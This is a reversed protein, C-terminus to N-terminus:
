PLEATVQLVFLFIISPLIQGSTWNRSPDNQGHHGSEVSVVDSWHSVEGYANLFYMYKKFFSKKIFLM